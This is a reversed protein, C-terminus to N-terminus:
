AKDAPVNDRAPFWFGLIRPLIFAAVMVVAAICAMRLAGYETVWVPMMSTVVGGGIAWGTLPASIATVELVDSKFEPDCTKVLLMGTALVGTFEGFLLMSNEFWYKGFLRRAFYINLFLMTPMMIGQQIILPWAYAIVVSVNVSAVAGAVLFELSLGQIRSTTAPDISHKWSTHNILQRVILGGFMAMVFWAINIDFYIKLARTLLWGIFAAVCIIAMHFALNDVVSNNITAKTDSTQHEPLYMEEAEGSLSTTSHLFETWGNKVAINILIMGGVVGYVLGVTASTISLSQGDLWNLQEFILAMGGATGHGGAWGEEVICGFLQNVGFVPVFLFATLFLPIAYQCACACWQYFVAGGAKKLTNKEKIIKEGMMMPAFVLVILRGALSSWCTMIEKPIVKLFYPGLALGIFGAILSAPIHYKKLIGIKLRLITGAILLLGLICIYVFTADLSAGDIVKNPIM